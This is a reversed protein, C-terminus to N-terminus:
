SVLIVRRRLSPAWNRVAQCVLLREEWNVRGLRLWPENWLPPEPLSTAIASAQRTQHRGEALNVKETEESRKCKVLVKM